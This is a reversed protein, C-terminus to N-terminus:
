TAKSLSATLGDTFNAAAATNPKTM